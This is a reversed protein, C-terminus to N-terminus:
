AVVTLSPAVNSNFPTVASVSGKFKFPKPTLLRPAKLTNLVLGAAVKDPKIVACVAVLILVSIVEPVLVNVMLPPIVFVFPKVNPLIPSTDILLTILPEPLKTLSPAPLNNSLM